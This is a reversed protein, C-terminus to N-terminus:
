HSRSRRRGSKTRNGAFEQWFPLLVSDEAKRLRFLGDEAKHQSVCFVPSPCCGFVSAIVVLSCLWTVGQCTEKRNVSEASPTHEPSLVSKTRTASVTRVATSLIVYPRLVPVSVPTTRGHVTLKKIPHVTCIHSVSYTFLHKYSAFKALKVFRVHFCFAFIGAHM